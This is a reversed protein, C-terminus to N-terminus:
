PWMGGECRSRGVGKAEAARDHAGANGDAISAKLRARQSVLEPLDKLRESLTKM